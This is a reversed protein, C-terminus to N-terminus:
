AVPLSTRKYWFDFEVSGELLFIRHIKAVSRGMEGHELFDVGNVEISSVRHLHKTTM